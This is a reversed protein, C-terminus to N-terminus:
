PGLDRSVARQAARGRSHAAEGDSGSASGTESGSDTDSENASDSDSEESSESENSPDNADRQVIEHADKLGSRLQELETTIMSSPTRSAKLVHKLDDKVDLITPDHRQILRVLYQMITTKQDFAKADKLKLLSDLTFAQVQDGGANLKNGLKLIMGFMSRLRDSKKVDDCAADVVGVLSCIERQAVPFRKQFTLCRLRHSADTIGQVQLMFKDAEGLVDKDGKYALLLRREEDTPLLEALAMLQDLTFDHGRLGKINHAIKTYAIKIRALAIGGNMARKSDILHVTEKKKDKPKDTQKKDNAQPAPTRFPLM